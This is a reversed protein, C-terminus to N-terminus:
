VHQMVWDLIQNATDVVANADWSQPSDDAQIFGYAAALSPMMARQAAEIDTRADGIYVCHSPSSATIRCAELLPAPHPKSYNTTDGSIICAARKHLDLKELLSQTLRTIKNTVVGWKLNHQELEQLVMEMGPFLHSHNAINLHYHDVLETVLQQKYQEPINGLAFGLMGAAGTSIYPAVNSLSVTPHQHKELVANLANVLDPATNVLTGDLDFLVTRIRGPQIM